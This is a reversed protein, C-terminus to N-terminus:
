DTVASRHRLRQTHQSNRDPLIALLQSALVTSRSPPFKQPPYDGIVQQLAGDTADCPSAKASNLPASNKFAKSSPTKDVLAICGSSVSRGRHRTSPKRQCVDARRPSSRPAQPAILYCISKNRTRHRNDQLTAPFLVHYRRVLNITSMLSRQQTHLTFIDGSLPM